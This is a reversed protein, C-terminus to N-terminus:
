PKCADCVIATPISRYPSQDTGTRWDSKMGSPAQSACGNLAVAALIMFLLKKM